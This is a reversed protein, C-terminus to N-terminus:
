GGYAPHNALLVDGNKLPCKRSYEIQYKVAEQMAGLHVPIHPANAVLGGNHDFMACSFDLREKINTSVSTRQLIRGMQEAIGM